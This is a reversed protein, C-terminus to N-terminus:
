LDIIYEDIFNFRKEIHKFLYIMEKGGSVLNSDIAIAEREFVGNENILTYKNSFMLKINEQSLTNSKLSEWRVKLEEKFEDNNLLRTFLKNWYIKNSNSINEGLFNKGFTGDLDWPVFFYKSTNKRKCIYVNNGMNDSGSVYNVFLFYDVANKLDVYKSIKDNFKAM